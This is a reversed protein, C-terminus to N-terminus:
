KSTGRHSTAIRAVGAFPRAEVKTQAIDGVRIGADARRVRARAAARFERILERSAVLHLAFPRM